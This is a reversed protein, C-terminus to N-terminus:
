GEGQAGANSKGNEASGHDGDEDLETEDDCREDSGGSAASKADEGEFM